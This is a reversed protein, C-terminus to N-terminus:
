TSMEEFKSSLSTSIAKSGTQVKTVIKIAEKVIQDISLMHPGCRCRNGMATMMTMLNSVQTFTISMADLKANM